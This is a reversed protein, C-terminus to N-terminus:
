FIAYFYCFMSKLWSCKWIIQPNKNKVDELIEKQKRKPLLLIVSFVRCDLFSKYVSELLNFLIFLIYGAYYLLLRFFFTSSSNDSYSNKIFLVGKVFRCIISLVCLVTHLSLKEFSPFRYLCYHNWCIYYTTCTAFSFLFFISFSLSLAPFNFIFSLSHSTKKQPRRFERIRSYSPQKRTFLSLAVPVTAFSFFLTLSLSNTSSYYKLSHHQITLGVESNWARECM